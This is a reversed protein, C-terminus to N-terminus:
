GTNTSCAKAQLSRRRNYNWVERRLLLIGPFAESRNNYGESRILRDFSKLFDSDLAVRTPILGMTARREIAFHLVFKVIAVNLGIRQVSATASRGAWIKPVSACLRLAREPVAVEGLSDTETRTNRM